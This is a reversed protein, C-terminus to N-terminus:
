HIPTSWAISIALHITLVGLRSYYARFFWLSTSDNWSLFSRRAFKCIKEIILFFISRFCAGKSWLYTFVRRIVRVFFIWEYHSLKFTYKILATFNRLSLFDSSEKILEIAHFGKFVVSKCGKFLLGLTWTFSLWSLLNRQSIEKFFTTLL